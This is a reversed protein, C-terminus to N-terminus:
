DGVVVRVGVRHWGAFTEGRGRVWSFGEYREGQAQRLTPRDDAFRAAVLGRRGTMGTFVPIWYAM